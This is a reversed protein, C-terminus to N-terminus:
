DKEVPLGAQVWASLGGTLNFVTKGARVCQEAAKMSRGGAACSIVAIRGQTQPVAGADFCSLPNLRAGAIRASAFEGPERVDILDCTGKELAKWADAPSIQRIDSM